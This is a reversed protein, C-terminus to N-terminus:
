SDGHNPLRIDWHVAVLRMVVVVTLGVLVPVSETVPLLSVLLYAWSGVFACTAYLPATTFLSPVENCIVEGIVGGFTGTVVGLLSAIFLSTGADLAQSTGLICFLGLGFADPVHLWKSLGLPLRGFLSTVVALGFVIIAYEQHQIWFLPNRDLFLDRTTGGGFAIIFAVAFVGVFDMGKRRALLVGYTGSTVVAFLEIIRFFSDM